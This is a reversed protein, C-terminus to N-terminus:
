QPEIESSWLQYQAAILWIQVFVHILRYFQYILLALFGAWIYSATVAVGTLIGSFLVLIVAITIVSLGYKLLFTLGSLARIRSAKAFQIFTFLLQILLGYIVFGIMWPLLDLLAAQYTVNISWVYKFKPLLWILPTFTLALQALYYFFFPLALEKIGSVFRYGAPHEPHALSYYIGANLLPTVLMRVAIFIGLWWLYPQILDTKFLQFQSEALFLQTAAAPQDAGPYRHMLPVVISQVMKYLVLGCLLQYLFLLIVAFPQQWAQSFGTKLYRTM